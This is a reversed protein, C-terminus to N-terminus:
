TIIYKAIKDYYQKAAAKDGSAILNSLKLSVQEAYIQTIKESIRQQEEIPLDELLTDGYYLNVKM